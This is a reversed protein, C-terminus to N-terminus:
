IRFGAISPIIKHIMLPFDVNKGYKSKINHYKVLVTRNIIHNGCLRNWFCIWM